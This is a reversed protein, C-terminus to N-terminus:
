AGGGSGSSLVSSTSRQGSARPPSTAHAPEHGAGGTVIAVQGTKLLAALDSRVLTNEGGLLALGPHLM